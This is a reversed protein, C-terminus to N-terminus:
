LLLPDVKIGGLKEVAADDPNGEDAVIGDAASLLWSWKGFMAYRWGWKGGGIVLELVM